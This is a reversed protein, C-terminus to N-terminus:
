PVNSVLHLVSVRSFVIFAAREVDEYSAMQELSNFFVVTYSSGIGIRRFPNISVMYDQPM